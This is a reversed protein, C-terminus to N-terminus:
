LPTRKKYSEFATRALLSEQTLVEIRAELEKLVSDTSAPGSGLTKCMRSYVRKEDRLTDQVQRAAESLQRRRSRVYRPDLGSTLVLNRTLHTGAVLEVTQIRTKDPSLDKLDWVGGYGQLHIKTDLVGLIRFEGCWLTERGRTLYKGVLAGPYVWAPTLARKRDEGRSHSGM